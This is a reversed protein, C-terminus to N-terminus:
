VEKKYKLSFIVHYDEIGNQYQKFLTPPSILDISNVIRNGTLSIYRNLDIDLLWNAINTLTEECNVRQNTNTPVSRYVISFKYIAMYSDNIYRQVIYSSDTMNYISMSSQTTDLSQYEIRDVPLTTYQSNILVLIAKAISQQEVISLYNNNTM